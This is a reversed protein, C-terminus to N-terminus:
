APVPYETRVRRTLPDVVLLRAPSGVSLPEPQGLVGAARGSTAAVAEPLTAGADLLRHFGDVVTSTSGALSSGDATMAIGDTVVVASGAVRHEGDPCGTAAMADSVLAIRGAASRRALDITVDDLHHGDAILEVTLRDDTLAVGVPGPARHHLPPMGNWLHTVLRAGADVAARVTDADADTHGVAVVVGAETLLRVVDLAGPLEPAITVIRLADGAADLFGAAKATSPAHLLSAAHAGRRAASLWPGELHLGALTGDAVLPRLRRLAVETASVPGSAISAVLAGTGRARHHEVVRRADDASCSAFDHGLAGHAHLDVFAPVVVGDHHVHDVHPPRTGTGRATVVGDRVLLWGDDLVADPTVLRDTTVLTATTTPTM